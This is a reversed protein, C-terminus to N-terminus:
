FSRWKDAYLWTLTIGADMSALNQTSDSKVPGWAAFQRLKSSQVSEIFYIPTKKSGINERLFIVALLAAAAVSSIASGFSPTQLSNTKYRYGLFNDLDPDSYIQAM